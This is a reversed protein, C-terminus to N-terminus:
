CNRSGVRMFGDTGHAEETSTFLVADGAVYGGAVIHQGVVAGGAAVFGEEAGGWPSTLSVLSHTM